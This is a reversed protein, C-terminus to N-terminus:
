INPSSWHSSRSARPPSWRPAPTRRAGGARAGTHDCLRPSYQGLLLRLADPLRVGRERGCGRLGAAYLFRYNGEMIEPRDPLATLDNLCVARVRALGEDLPKNFAELAAEFRPRFGQWAGQPVRGTNFLYINFSPSVGYRYEEFLGQVEDDALEPCANILRTLQERTLRQIARKLDRPRRGLVERLRVRILSDMGPDDLLEGVARRLAFVPIQQLQRTRLELDSMLGRRVFYQTRIM